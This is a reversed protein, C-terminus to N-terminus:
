KSLINLTPNGFANVTAQYKKLLRTTLDLNTDKLRYINSRRDCAQVSNIYVANIKLAM